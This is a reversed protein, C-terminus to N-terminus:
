FEEEEDFGQSVVPSNIEELFDKPSETKHTNESTLGKEVVVEAAPAVDVRKFYSELFDQLVKDLEIAKENTEPHTKIEEFVPENWIVSGKKGAKTTVIKFACDTIKRGSKTVTGVTAIWPGIPAGYLKINGLLLNKNEDFYGIYISNAFKADMSEAKDKISDWTGKLVTKGKIKVDLVEVKTAGMYNRVENSYFSSQEADSFGSVTTLVDLVLFKFPLPVFINAGKKTADTPHPAEKDYYKFQKSNSDWQLWRKTPNVIPDATPNSRSM